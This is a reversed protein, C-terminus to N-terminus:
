KNCLIFKSYFLQKVITKEYNKLFNYLIFIIKNDHDIIRINHYIDFQFYYQSDIYFLNDNNYLQIINRYNSNLNAFIILQSKNDFGHSNFFNNIENIINYKFTYLFNIIFKCDKTNKISKMIDFKYLKYGDINNDYLKRFYIQRLTPFIKPSIFLKNYFKSIEKSNILNIYISIRNILLLSDFDIESDKNIYICNNVDFSIINNNYFSKM